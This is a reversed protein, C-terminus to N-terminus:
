IMPPVHVEVAASRRGMMPEHAARSSVLTMISKILHRVNYFAASAERYPRRFQLPAVLYIETPFRGSHVTVREFAAEEFGAARGRRRAVLVRPVTTKRELVQLFLNLSPVTSGSLIFGTNLGAPISASRNSPESVTQPISHHAPEQNQIGSYLAPHLDISEKEWVKGRGGEMQIVREGGVAAERRKAEEVGGEKCGTKIRIDDEQKSVEGQARGIPTSRTRRKRRRGVWRRGCRTSGVGAGRKGKEGMADSDRRAAISEYSVYEEISWVGYEMCMGSVKRNGYKGERCGKSGKGKRKEGGVRIQGGESHHLREQAWAMHVNEGRERLRVRTENEPRQVNWKKATGGGPPAWLVTKAYKPSKPNSGNPGAPALPAPAMWTGKERGAGDGAGRQAMLHSGGKDAVASLDATLLIKRLTVLTDCESLGPMLPGSISGTAPNDCPTVPLQAVSFRRCPTDSPTHKFVRSESGMVRTHYALLSHHCINTNAEYGKLGERYFRSPDQCVDALSPQESM